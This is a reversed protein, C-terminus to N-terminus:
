SNYFLKRAYQEVLIVLCKNLFDSACDYNFALFISFCVFYFVYMYVVHVCFAVKACAAILTLKCM